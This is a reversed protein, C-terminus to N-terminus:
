IIYIKLLIARQPSNREQAFSVTHNGENEKFTALYQMISTRYNHRCLGHEKQLAVFWTIQVSSTPTTSKACYPNITCPCSTCPQRAQCSCDGTLVRHLGESLNLFTTNVGM